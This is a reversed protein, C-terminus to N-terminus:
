VPLIAVVCYGEEMLEWIQFPVLLQVEENIETKRSSLKVYLKAVFSLARKCEPSVSLGLGMIEEILEATKANEREEDILRKYEEFSKHRVTIKITEGKNKVLCWVAECSNLQKQIELFQNLCPIVGSKDIIKDENTNNMKTFDNILRTDLDAGTGTVIDSINSVTLTDLGPQTLLENQPLLDIMSTPLLNPIQKAIEQQQSHIYNLAVNKPGTSLYKEIQALHDLHDKKILNTQQLLADYKKQLENHDKTLKEFNFADTDDNLQILDM